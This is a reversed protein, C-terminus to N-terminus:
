LVALVRKLNESLESPKSASRGGRYHVPILDTGPAPAVPYRDECDRIRAILQGLRYRGRDSEMVTPGCVLVSSAEVPQQVRRPRRM